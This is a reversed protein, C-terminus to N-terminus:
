GVRNKLANDEPSKPTKSLRKSRRMSRIIRRIEEPSKGKAVYVAFAFMELNKQIATIAQETGSDLIVDLFEHWEQNRYHPMEILSADEHSGGSLDGALYRRILSEVVVDLNGGQGKVKGNFALKLETPLRVSLQKTDKDEKRQKSQL